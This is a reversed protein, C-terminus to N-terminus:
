AADGVARREPLVARVSPRLENIELTVGHDALDAGFEALMEAVTADAAVERSADVVVGTAM